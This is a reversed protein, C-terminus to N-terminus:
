IFYYKEIKFIFSFRSKVMKLRLFRRLFYKHYFVFLSVFFLLIVLFISAFVTSCDAIPDYLVNEEVKLGQCLSVAALLLALLRLVFFM